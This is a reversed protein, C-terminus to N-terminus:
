RADRQQQGGLRKPREHGFVRQGCVVEREFFAGVTDFAVHPQGAVTMQNAHMVTPQVPRRGPAPNTLM